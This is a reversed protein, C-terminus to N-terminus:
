EPRRDAPGRLFRGAAMAAKTQLAGMAMSQSIEDM